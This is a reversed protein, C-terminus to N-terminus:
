AARRGRVGRKHQQGPVLDLGVPQVLVHGEGGNDVLRDFVALGARVQGASGSCIARGGGKGRGRGRGKRGGDGGARRGVRWEDRRGGEANERSVQQSGARGCRSTFRKVVGM